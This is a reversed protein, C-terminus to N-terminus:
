SGDPLSQLFEVIELVFPDYDPDKWEAKTTNEESDISVNITVGVSDLRGLISKRYVFEEFADGRDDAPWLTIKQLDQFYERCGLFKELWAVISVYPFYISLEELGRPLLSTPHKMDGASNDLLAEQPLSLTKLNPFTTFTTAPTIWDLFSPDILPIDLVELTEHIPYLYNLFWDYSGSVVNGLYRSAQLEPVRYYNDLTVVLKKLGTFRRIYSSADRYKPYRFSLAETTLELELDDVKCTWPVSPDDELYCHEGLLVSNVQPLRYWPCELRNSFM